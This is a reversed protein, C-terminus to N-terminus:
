EALTVQNNVLAESTSGPDERRQEKMAEALHLVCYTSSGHAFGLLTQGRTYAAGSQPDPAPPPPDQTVSKVVLSFLAGLSPSRLPETGCWPEGGM